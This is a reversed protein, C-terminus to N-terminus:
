GLFVEHERTFHAVVGPPLIAAEGAGDGLPRVQTAFCDIAAVKAAAVEPRLSLRSARQWPLEDGGPRAWHWAWVPFELVRAPMGSAARAVARGVAEHDPHADGRWPCVVLDAGALPGALRGVLADEHDAVAGDPLQLRVVRARGLGLTALARGLEVSRARAMAAPTVRSSEPHSAEGDTVSVVTIDAGAQALMALLGGAGLVEDDPHAAVATVRRLRTALRLPGLRELGGWDAWAQEDTSGAAIRDEAAPLPERATV